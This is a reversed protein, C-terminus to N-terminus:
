QVGGGVVFIFPLDDTLSQENLKKVLEFNNDIDLSADYVTIYYNSDDPYKKIEYNFTESLYSALLSNLIFEENFLKWDLLKSLEEQNIM